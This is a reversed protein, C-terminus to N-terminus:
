MPGEPVKFRHHQRCCIEQSSSEGFNELEFLGGPMGAFPAKMSNM